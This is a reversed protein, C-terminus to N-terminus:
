VAVRHLKLRFIVLYSSQQSDNWRIQNETKLNFSSIVYITKTVYFLSFFYYHDKSCTVKYYSGCKTISSATQLLTQWVKYYGSASQLLLRDCKTSGSVSQLIIVKNCKAIYLIDFFLRHFQTIVSQLLIIM